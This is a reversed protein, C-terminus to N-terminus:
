LGKFLQLLSEKSQAYIGPQQSERPGAINLTKIQHDTLWTRATESNMETPDAILIPKGYKLALKHTLETGGTLPAQTTLILTADSDRVNWETRETYGTKETEDLPYSDPLPGDEAKRGKPCWGGCDMGLELAADLAARDVGTQGGSIIKLNDFQDVSQINTPRFHVGTACAAKM